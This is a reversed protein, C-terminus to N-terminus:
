NHNVIVSVSTSYYTVGMLDVLGEEEISPVILAKATGGLSTDASVCAIVSSTGEPALFGDMLTQATPLDTSAVYLGIVFHTQDGGDFDVNKNTQKRVVVAHPPNIQGPWGSSVRLGPIGTLTNALAQRVQPITFASM